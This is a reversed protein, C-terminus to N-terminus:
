RATELDGIRHEHDNLQKSQDVVAAKIIQMDEKLKSVDGEIHTVRQKIEPIDQLYERIVKLEDMLVNGLVAKREDDTLDQM